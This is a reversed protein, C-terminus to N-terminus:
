KGKKDSLIEEIMSRMKSLFTMVWYQESEIVKLHWKDKKSLYLNLYSNKRFDPFVEYIYTKFKKIVPNKRDQLIIERSPSFYGNLVAWYELEKYFTQYVNKEKFFDLIGDIMETRDAFNREFKTATMISGSRITYEYFSEKIYGVKDALLLLKPITGLDEYYKGVPFRIGTKIFLDRRFLKNWAAPAGFLLRPESKLTYIGSKEIEMTALTETHEEVRTFDFIVMDSSSIEITRVCTELLNEKIVDDSDVFLVYKGKAMELGANRADSLGGNEKHLVKIRSDKKAYEECMSGCRDPSGDDVLIIEIHEYTQQLISEVCRELYAEVNYIPVIVSVLEM